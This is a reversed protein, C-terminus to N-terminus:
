KRSRRKRRVPRDNVADAPATPEEGHEPFEEELWAYFFACYNIIDIVNDKAVEPLPIGAKIQTRMRVMKQEINQGYSAAGYPFHDRKTPDAHQEPTNYQIGREDMLQQAKKLSPHLAPTPKAQTYPKLRPHVM